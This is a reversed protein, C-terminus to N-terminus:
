EDLRIRFTTAPFIEPTGPRDYRLPPAPSIQKCIQELFGLCALFSLAKVQQHDNVLSNFLFPQHMKYVHRLLLELRSHKEPFHKEPFHKEPISRQFAPINLKIFYGDEYKFIRVNQMTNGIIYVLFLLWYQKNIINNPM